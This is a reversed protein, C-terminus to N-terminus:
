RKSCWEQHSGGLGCCEPCPVWYELPEKPWIAGVEDADVDHELFASRQRHCFDDPQYPCREWDPAGCYDCIM